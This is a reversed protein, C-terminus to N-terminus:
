KMIAKVTEVMEDVTVKRYSSTPEFDRWSSEGMEPNSLSLTAKISKGAGTTATVTELTPIWQGAEVECYEDYELLVSRSGITLQTSALRGSANIDYRLSYDKGTYVGITNGKTGDPKTPTSWLLRSYDRSTARGHGPIYIRGLVICELAEMEHGKLEDIRYLDSLRETCYMKDYKDVVLVQEQTAEVRAIEFGLLPANVQMCLRRGSELCLKGNLSTSGLTYKSKSQLADYTFDGNRVVTEYRAQEPNPGDLTSVLNRRSRCSTLAAVACLTLILTKITNRTKM